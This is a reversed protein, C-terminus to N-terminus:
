RETDDDEPVEESESCVFGALDTGMVEFRLREAEGAAVEVELPALGGLVGFSDFPFIWGERIERTSFVNLLEWAGFVRLLSLWTSDVGGFLLAM